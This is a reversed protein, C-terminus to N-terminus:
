MNLNGCIDWTKNQKKIFNFTASVWMEKLTVPFIM